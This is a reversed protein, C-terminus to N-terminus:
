EEETEQDDGFILLKNARLYDYHEKTLYIISAEQAGTYLKYFQGKLKNETVVTKIFDFFDPDIWDNEIKLTKRYSQTGIKFKLVVKKNREIDFNDSIDIANFEGRSIKKYERILEAYPDELNGLETDFMYIVDPFARLVDNLNNNEQESVKEEAKKIQEPNLHAFLGIKKYEEISQEIKKSTLKNKFNEYSLSLYVRGSNLLDAQEKTLAIIAFAKWDVADGLHAGVQHLRYPSQLDILIKNFIKYYEQQDVKDGFYQNTSPVYLHYSSKQIYNKNNSKMSVVFDYFKNDSDSISSDLVIQFEFNTFDLDSIISATKQHILELYKEPENPYDQENIVVAKDCYNLFDIPGKLIEQEIDAALKDYKLTVIEKSKLRNAFVKLREPAMHEKFAIQEIISPLLQLIFVFDNNNIKINFYDFLSVNLLDCSKLKALYQTLEENIQTQETPTPAESGYIIHNGFSPYNHGMLKKYEAQLLASLYAKNSKVESTELFNEFEKVQEQDILKNDILKQLTTDMTQRNSFNVTLIFLTLINLLTKM